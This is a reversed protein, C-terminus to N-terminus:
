NLTIFTLKNKLDRINQLLIQEATNLVSTTKSQRVVDSVQVAVDSKSLLVIKLHILYSFFVVFRQRLAMQRSFAYASSLIQHSIFKLNVSKM